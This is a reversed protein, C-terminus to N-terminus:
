SVAGYRLFIAVSSPEQKERHRQTLNRPINGHTPLARLQAQVDVDSGSQDAHSTLPSLTQFSRQRFGSLGNYFAEYEPHAGPVFPMGGGTMIDLNYRSVDPQKTDPNFRIYADGVHITYGQVYLWQQEPTIEINGFTTPAVPSGDLYVWQNNPDITTAMHQREAQASRRDLEKLVNNPTFRKGIKSAVFSHNGKKYILTKMKQEPTKDRLVEVQIGRDKMKAMFTGVDKVSPDNLVENAIQRIEVKSRESGRLKEPDLSLSDTGMTLNHRRTIDLCVAKNRYRNTASKIIKGDYDVRSFMIHCHPHPKDTHRVIIYPTNTIGMKEMYEEAIKLMYDDTLRDSDKPSFGLSIHGCPEKIKSRSLAPREMDRVATKRWGDEGINLRLGDSGLVEWIQKEKPLNDQKIRTIYDLCGGFSSGSSIKGIM